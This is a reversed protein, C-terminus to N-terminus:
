TRAPLVSVAEGRGADPRRTIHLLPRSTGYGGCASCRPVWAESQMGCASCDHRLGLEGQALAAAAEDVDGRRLNLMGLLASMEPFRTVEQELQSFVHMADDLMELRHYIRGLYFRLRISAPDREVLQTFYRIAERPEEMKVIYLNEIPPLLGEDRTAEYGKQYTALAEQAQGEGQLADALAAYSPAFGPSQRILERLANKGQDTRGANLHSVAAEFRFGTLREAEAKSDLGSMPSAILQEQAAAAQEWAEAHMHMDRQRLLFGQHRPDAKLAQEILQTARELAGMAIFDDVLSLSVAPNDPELRTALRHLSIAEKLRGSDRMLDGLRRIAPVHEPSMKTVKYYLERAKEARGALREKEAALYTSSIKESQRKRMGRGMRRFMLRVDQLLSGTFGLALGAAVCGLLLPVLGVEVQQTHSVTIQVTSDNFFALYGGAAVLILVFLLLVRM